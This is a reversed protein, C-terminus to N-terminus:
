KGEGGCVSHANAAMYPYSFASILCLLFSLSAHASDHEAQSHHIWSQWTVRKYAALM